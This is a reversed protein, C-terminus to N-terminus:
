WYLLGDADAVGVHEDTLGENDQFTGVILRLALTGRTGACAISTIIGTAGSVAGTLLDNVTFHGTMNDFDLSANRTSFSHLMEPATIPIGYDSPSGLMDPETLLMAYTTIEDSIPESMEILADTIVDVDSITLPLFADTKIDLLVPANLLLAYTTDVDVDDPICDMWPLRYYDAGYRRIWELWDDIKDWDIDYDCEVHISIDTTASGTMTDTITEGDSFIGVQGYVILYGETPSTVVDELIVAFAGSLAGTVKLGINFPGTKTNYPITNGIKDIRDDFAVVFKHYQEYPDIEFTAVLDEYNIRDFIRVASTLLTGAPVVDGVVLNRWTGDSLKVEFPLVSPNEITFETSRSPFPTLTIEDNGSMSVVEATIPSYPYGLIINLGLELNPVILGTLQIYRLYTIDYWTRFEKYLVDNYQLSPGFVEVMKTSAKLRYKTAWMTRGCTTGASLKLLGTKGNEPQTETIFDFKWSKLEIEPECLFDQLVSISRFYEPIEFVCPTIQLCVVVGPDVDDPDPEEECFWLQLPIPDEPTNTYEISTPLHSHKKTEVESIYAKAAQDWGKHAATVQGRHEMIEWLNSLRGWIKTWNVWNISRSHAVYDLDVFKCPGGGYFKGKTAVAISRLVKGLTAIHVGM